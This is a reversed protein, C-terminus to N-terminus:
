VAHSQLSHVHKKELAARWEAYADEPNADAPIALGTYANMTRRIEGLTACYAISCGIVPHHYDLWDLFEVDTM